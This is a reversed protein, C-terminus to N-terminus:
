FPYFSDWRMNVIKPVDTWNLRETTDWEKRCLNGRISSTGTCPISQWDIYKIIMIATIIVIFHLSTVWGHGVRQSGMSQLGDPEETWPIRWALISSHTAMEKELPDERGPSRVWTEWIAPLAKLRQAVLSAGIIVISGQIKVSSWLSEFSLM